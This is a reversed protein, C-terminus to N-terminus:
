IRKLLGEVEVNIDASVNFVSAGGKFNATFKTEKPTINSISYGGYRYNWINRNYRLIAEINSVLKWLNVEPDAYDNYIAQIKFDLFITRTFNTSANDKQYERKFQPRVYVVPYNPMFEPQIEPDLRRVASVRKVLGDSLDYPQGVQNANNLETVFLDVIGNYDCVFM